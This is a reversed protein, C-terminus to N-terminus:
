YQRSVYYKQPSIAQKILRILQNLLSLPKYCNHSSPITGKFYRCSCPAKRKGYKYSRTQKYEEFREVARFDDIVGCPPIDNDEDQCFKPAM